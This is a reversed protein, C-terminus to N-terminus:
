TACSASPTLDSPPVARTASQELLPGNCKAALADRHFSLWGLFLGREDGATPVPTIEVTM